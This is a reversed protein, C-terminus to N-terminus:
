RPANSDEKIEEIESERYIPSKKRGNDVKYGYKHSGFYDDLAMVDIIEGTRKVKVKTYYSSM